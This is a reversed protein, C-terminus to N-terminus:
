SVVSTAPHLTILIGVLEEPQGPGAAFRCGSTGLGDASPEWRSRSRESLWWGGGDEASVYSVSRSGREKNFLQWLLERPPPPPMTVDLSYQVSSPDQFVM